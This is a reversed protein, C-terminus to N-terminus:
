EYVKGQEKEDKRESWYAWGYLVGELLLCVVLLAYFIKPSILPGAFRETVSFTMDGNMNGNGVFEGADYYDRTNKRTHCVGVNSEYNEVAVLQIEYETVGDPVITDFLFSKTDAENKKIVDSLFAQRYLVEEGNRLLFQYQQGDPVEDSKVFQISIRNFPQKLAFTQTAGEMLILTNTQSTPQSVRTEYRNDITGIMKSGYFAALLITMGQLVIATQKIGFYISKQKKGGGGFRWRLIVPREICFEQHIAEVGVAAALFMFPFLMLLYREHVEWFLHFLIYGFITVPITMGVTLYKRRFATMGPIMCILTMSRIMQAAYNTIFRKAGVTYEYLDSYQVAVSLEMRMATMGDAWLCSVKKAWLQCLGLLGMEQLQQKIQAINVAIKEVYTSASATLNWMEQSWKGGSKPNLGMMICHTIPFTMDSDIPVGMWMELGRWFCFSPLMGVMLFVTPKIAKKWDRLWLYILVAIVSIGASYRIQMGTYAVFGALCYLFMRTHGMKKEALMVLYVIGVFFPMVLTDTYYYSVTLYMVPNTVVLALACIGLKRGGLQTAVGYTGMAAMLLCIAGLITGSIRYSSIGIMEGLKYTGTLIYVINRNFPYMSLYGELDGFSGNEVFSAAAYHVNFLDAQRASTITLGVTLLGVAMVLLMGMGIYKLARESLFSAVNYIAVMLMLYVAAGMFLIIPTYEFAFLATYACFLMIFILLLLVIQYGIECVRGVAIRRNGKAMGAM